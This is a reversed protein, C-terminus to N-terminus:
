FLIKFGYFLGGVLLLPLFLWFLFIILGAFIIFVEALVGIIILISRTIAGIIRSILNSSFTWFYRQLDLGRGYSWRYGRWYSFFTKLLLLISFYNIGFFLFNRWAGLINRPAEFFQWSIWQVLINQRQTIERM